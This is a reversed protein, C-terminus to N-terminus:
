QAGRPAPRADRVNPLSQRDGLAPGTRREALVPRCLALDRPATFILLLQRVVKHGQDPLMAPQAVPLHCSKQADGRAPHDIVLPDFPDPPLFPQLDGSPLRFAAPDPLAIAGADTEPGLPGIVDPGIVEDLVAGM